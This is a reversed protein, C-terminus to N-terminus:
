ESLQQAQVREPQQVPESPGALQRAREFSQEEPTGLAQETKM